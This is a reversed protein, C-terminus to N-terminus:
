DSKELKELMPTIKDLQEFLEKVDDKMKESDSMAESVVKTVAEIRQLEKEFDLKGLAEELKKLDPTAGLNPTVSPEDTEEFLLTDKEDAM